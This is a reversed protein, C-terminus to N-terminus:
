QRLVFQKPRQLVSLTQGGTQKTKPLRISILSILNKSM